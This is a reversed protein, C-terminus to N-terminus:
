NKYFIQNYLSEIKIQNAKINLFQHIDVKQTQYGYTVALLWDKVNTKQTIDKNGDKDKESALWYDNVTIIVKSLPLNTEESALKGWALDHNIDLQVGGNADIARHQHISVLGSPENNQDFECFLQYNQYVPLAATVGFSDFNGYLFSPTIARRSNPAKKIESIVNLLTDTQNTKLIRELIEPNKLYFNVNDIGQWGLVNIFNTIHMYKYVKLFLENLEEKSKINLEEIGLKKLVACTAKVFGWGSDYWRSRQNYRFQELYNNENPDYVHSGPENGDKSVFKHQYYHDEEKTWYPYLDKHDCELPNNIVLTLAKISKVESFVSQYIQGEAQVKERAKDIVERPSNGNITLNNMNQFNIIKKFSNILITLNTNLFIHKVM